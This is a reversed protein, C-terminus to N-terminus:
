FCSIRFLDSYRFEFHRFRDPEADTKYMQIEFKNRIEFNTSRIEGDSFDKVANISPATTARGAIDGYGTEPSDANLDSQPANQLPPRIAVNRV